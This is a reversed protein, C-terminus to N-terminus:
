QGVRPPFQIPLTVSIATGEGPTSAITMRGGINEARERMGLLGFGARKKAEGANFGCGNDRVLLWLTDASQELRVEVRSAKSHRAVNTLIEQFIRFAATEADKSASGRFDAMVQCRIGARRSFDNAQWELAEALGFEDLVPPRLQTTIRRAAQLTAELQQEMAELKDMLPATAEEDPLIRSIRGGVWALDIRMLTLSQGLEDHIERAVRMREDELQKQGQVALERLQRKTDEREAEMAKAASVDIFFGRGLHVEGISSGSHVIQRVWKYEGTETRLRLEVDIDSGPRELAERHLGELHGDDEPHVVSCWFNPGYWKSVPVGLLLEAQPGIYIFRRTSLDMEFPVVPTTEALKRFLSENAALQEAAEHQLTTNEATGVVQLTRGEADQKFSSEYVRLWVWNGDAARLRFEREMIKGPKLDPLGALHERWEAEESPHALTLFFIPEMQLLADKTFGLPDVGGGNLYVICNLAIDYVYWIVPSAAAVQEIFQRNERLSEEAARRNTIDLMFGALMERGGNKGVVSMIDRVWVTRGDATVMRYESEFTRRKVLGEARAVSMWVRDEPHIHQSWFKERLWAKMPFGLFEEAQPGVYTMRGTELDAEWPVLNLSEVLRRFRERSERLAGEARKQETIDIVSGEFFLASGEPGYVTRAYEAIWVTSGDARYVESEFDSVYGQQQILRVFDRRRGPKVYLQKNLNRLAGMVEAPSQYGYIRALALNVELYRGDLTTRFIGEVANEFTERYSELTGPKTSEASMSKFIVAVSRAEGAGALGHMTWDCQVSAAGGSFIAMRGSGGQREGRLIEGAAASLALFADEKAEPFFAALPAGAGLAAKLGLMGCLGASIQEAEGGQNLILVASELTTESLM